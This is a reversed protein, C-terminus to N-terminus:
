IVRESLEFQQLASAIVLGGSSAVHGAAELVYKRHTRTGMNPLLLAQQYIEEQRRELLWM